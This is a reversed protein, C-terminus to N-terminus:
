NCLCAGTGETLMRGEGGVLVKWLSSRAQSASEVERNEVRPELVVRCGGTSGKEGPM